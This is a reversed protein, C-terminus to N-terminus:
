YKKEVPSVLKYRHQQDTISITGGKDGVVQANVYDFSEALENIIEIRNWPIVRVMKEGRCIDKDSVVSRGFHFTRCDMRVYSNTTELVQGIILHNHAEPYPKVTRIKWVMRNQKTIM